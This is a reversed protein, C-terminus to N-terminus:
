TTSFTSHYFLVWVRSLCCTVPCVGACLWAPRRASARMKVTDMVGSVLLSATYNGPGPFLCFALKDTWNDQKHLIHVSFPQFNASINCLSGSCFVAPLQIEAKMQSFFNRM